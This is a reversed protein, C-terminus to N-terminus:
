RLKKEALAMIRDLEKRVDAEPSYDNAEIRERAVGAAREVLGEGGAALWSDFPERTFVGPEWVEERFRMTTPHVLFTGERQSEKVIDLTPTQEWALGRAVRWAYGLIEMDIVAGGLHFCDDMPTMGPNAFTTAGSLVATLIAATKEAGAQADYTKGMCGFDGGITQGFFEKHLERIAMSMLVAEPTAMAFGSHRMDFTAQYMSCYGRVNENLLKATGYAALAEAFGQAFFGPALLPAVAGALPMAGGGVAVGEPTSGSRRMELVMELSRGDLRLPSHPIQLACHPGERGAARGLECLARVEDASDAQLYSGIGRSNEYSIRATVLQRMHPEVDAPHVPPVGDAGYSDLLRAALALDDCAAKRPSAAGEDWVRLCLFPPRVLPAKRCPINLMYDANDERVARIIDEVVRPTFFVRGGDVRIGERRSLEDLVEGSEIGVGVSELLELCDERVKAVVAANVGGRLRYTIREM